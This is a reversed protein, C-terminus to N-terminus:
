FHLIQGDDMTITIGVQPIKKVVTEKKPIISFSKTEASWERNKPKHTTTCRCWPHTAGVVPKWEDVNRGINTGNSRLEKITFIKPESGVGDTLYLRICHRCAKDYVDKYVEADEGYQRELVAVIGEDFALHNVFDAIRGFDRTWDKTAHGLRSVLQKISERNRLSKAAEKNIIAEYQKRQEQDVEILIQQTKQDIRNGLGKLDNAARNRIIQLSIKERETPPILIRQSNFLSRFKSYNISDLFKKPLTQTLFAFYFAHDILGHKEGTDVGMKDLTNIEASTLVQNGYVSQILSLINENIKTSLIKAKDFLM